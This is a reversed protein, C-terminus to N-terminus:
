VIHDVHVEIRNHLRFVGIQAMSGYAKTDHTKLISKVNLVDAVRTM